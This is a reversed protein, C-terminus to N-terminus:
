NHPVGLSERFFQDVRTCYEIKHTYFAASHTADPILWIQAGTGYREGLVQASDLAILPDATGQIILIPRPAIKSVWDQPSVERVAVGMQDGIIGVAFWDLIPFNVQRQITSQLSRFSSDVVLAEIEPRQAAAGILAVGGMSDGFAAIHQTEPQALLFDLAAFVDQGELYGFTTHDGGSLGHGRFDWSLAGYGQGVLWTHYEIHRRTAFGHALLITMGNQPPTYWASISIGDLTTLVIDQYPMQYAGPNEQPPISQRPPSVVGRAAQRALWYGFMSGSCLTILMLTLSIRLLNSLPLRKPM